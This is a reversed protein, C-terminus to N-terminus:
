AAVRLLAGTSANNYCLAIRLAFGITFALLMRRTGQLALRGVWSIKLLQGGILAILVAELVTGLLKLPTAVTLALLAPILIGGYDFGYRQSARASLAAGILVFIYARPSSLFHIAIDEYILDLRLLSLNTLPLLIFKLVLCTGGVM